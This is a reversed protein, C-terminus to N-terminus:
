WGLYYDEPLWEPRKLKIRDQLVKETTTLAGEVWAQMGSYAEGVIFVKADPGLPQKIDQMAQQVDVQPEWFHWGGGFPDLSWDAFAAMEPEPIEEVDAKRHLLALQERAHRVMEPAAEHMYPPMNSKVPGGGQPKQTSTGTQAKVGRPELGQWFGVALGDDYSAMILGYKKKEPDDPPMYYTQRIPLDSVSRGRVVHAAGDQPDDDEWWREGYLLFLKFAPYPRVSRLLQRLEMDHRHDFATSPNLLELSRQPLALIVNRAEVPTTKGEARVELRFVDGDKDFSLLEHGLNIKGGEKVVKEALAHPLSEYGGKLTKYHLDASFELAFTEFAEAANWNRAITYYGFADLIYQYAEASLRDALLNWLGIDRLPRPETSSEAQYTLRNKVRDWDKRTRPLHEASDPFEEKLLADNTPQKMVRKMEELLMQEPPKGREGNRLFYRKQAEEVTGAEMSHGRLYWRLGEGKVYFDTKKGPLLEDLLNWVLEQHKLFRMGGLEARLGDDNPYPLWTLLRGGVRDGAEFIEVSPPKGDSKKASTRLRWAAYLGSVGGGIVAYDLPGKTGPSTTM